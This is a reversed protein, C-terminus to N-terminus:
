QHAQKGSLNGCLAQVAYDAGESKTVSVRTGSLPTIIIGSQQTTIMRDHYVTERDVQKGKWTQGGVDLM